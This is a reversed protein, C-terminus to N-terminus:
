RCTHDINYFHCSTTRQGEGPPTLRHSPFSRPTRPNIYYETDCKYCGSCCKCYQCRTFGLYMFGKTIEITKSRYLILKPFLPWRGITSHMTTHAPESPRLLPWWYVPKVISDIGVRAMKLAYTYRLAWVNLILDSISAGFNCGRSIGLSTAM